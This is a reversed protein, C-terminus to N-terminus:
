LEEVEGNEVEMMVVFQVVAETKGCSINDAVAGNAHSRARPKLALYKSTM